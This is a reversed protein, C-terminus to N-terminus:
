VQDYDVTLKPTLPRSQCTLIFGADLEGQELAFNQAMTVEGEVLRARCTSCVGAKCAFPADAGANRAAELVSPGAGTGQKAMTFRTSTSDLIVTVEADGGDTTARERQAPRSVVHRSKPGFLEYHITAPDVSKDKLTQRVEDIMTSPGCIFAADITDLPVLTSALAKVKEGDIRGEFLPVEHSERSLLHVLRFRTLYSDKLDQLEEGFIISRRDRNGYVLAEDSLPENELITKVNSIVPTIGSGAAFFAYRRRRDPEIELFFRGSPPMAEIQDGVQLDENVFPSFRGGEVRKVAIRLAQDDVSACISYNRRLEEGDVTRRFTLHQGQRYAFLDELGGPVAFLVSVCDPTKRRIQKVTLPHFRPM